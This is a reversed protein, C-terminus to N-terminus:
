MSLRDLNPSIDLWLFLLRRLALLICWDKESHSSWSNFLIMHMNSLLFRFHPSRLIPHFSSNPPFHFADTSLLSLEFHAFCTFQLVTLRNVSKANKTWLHSASLRPLPVLSYSCPVYPGLLGRLWLACNGCNWSNGKSKNIFYRILLM